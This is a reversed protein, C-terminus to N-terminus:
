EECGAKVADEVREEEVEEQFTERARQLIEDMPEGHEKALHMLNVLLDSLQDRFDEQHTRTVLVHADLGLQAWSARVSNDVDRQEDSCWGYFRDVFQRRLRELDELRPRM